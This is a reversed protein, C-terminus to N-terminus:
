RILIYYFLAIFLVCFLVDDDVKHEKQVQEPVWKAKSQGVNSKGVPRYEGALM